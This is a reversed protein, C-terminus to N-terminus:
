SLAPDPDPPLAQNMMFIAGWQLNETLLCGGMYHADDTYRDDAACLAMIAKLAPPRLAAIQLSNFGGWSIGFMGVEGSCWPQAALWAIVEVGDAHEQATYEDSLLGESDGSGRLDVRVSAYGHRALYRHMPEDRHRMFDRKRYPLFELLAPVPNAAADDPRWIRAALRCGDALPIWVNEIDEIGDNM